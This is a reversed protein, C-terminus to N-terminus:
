CLCPLVKRGSHRRALSRRGCPLDALHTGKFLMQCTSTSSSLLLHLALPSSVSADYRRMGCTPKACGSGEHCSSVLTNRANSTYAFDKSTPVTNLWKQKWTHWRCIVSCRTKCYTSIDPKPRRAASCRTACSLWSNRNPLPWCLIKNQLPKAKPKRRKQEGRLSFPVTHEISRWRRQTALM